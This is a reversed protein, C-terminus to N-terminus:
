YFRFIIRGIIISLPRTFKKFSFFRYDKIEYRRRETARHNCKQIFFLSFKANIAIVPMLQQFITQQLQEILLTQLINKLSIFQYVFRHIYLNTKKITFLKQLLFYHLKLIVCFVIIFCFICRKVNHIKMLRSIPLITSMMIKGPRIDM